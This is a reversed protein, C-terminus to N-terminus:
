PKLRKDKSDQIARLGDYKILRQQMGDGVVQHTTFLIRFVNHLLSERTPKTNIMRLNLVCLSIKYFRDGIITEVVKLGKSLFLYFIEFVHSFDEIAKFFGIEGMEVKIHIERCRHRDKM